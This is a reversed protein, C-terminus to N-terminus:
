RRRRRRARSVLAFAGAAAAVTAARQLGARRVRLRGFCLYPRHETAFERVVERNSRTATWGQAHLRECDVVWPYMLYHLAGAPAGLVRHSWLTRAASFAIAEPVTVPHKGLVHALERASLWGEPAVNFTGPLDGLVALGVATALDDVHLFQVPPENDRVVPLVPQEFHRSVFTDAGPGLTTVPRLVTVAIEPHDAAWAHVLEEALQHQYAWSFDPNARLPTDETLPVRNGPHAGYVAASSLHVLRRVGAKAAADLLNRTGHVNIAFMTDEAPIPSPTIGAHVVVDVGELAVALVPDRVDAPRFDLKAVPMQPEELDLGVIREVARDADLRAIVAAGVYGAAGVVAVTLGTAVADTM